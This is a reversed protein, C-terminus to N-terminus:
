RPVQTRLLRVNLGGNTTRLVEEFTLSSIREANRTLLMALRWGGFSTAVVGAFETLLRQSEAREGLRVGYPPNTVLWGPGGPPPALGRVDTRAFRVLDGVGARQANAMAARIAAASRDSGVIPVSPIAREANRAAEYTAKWAGADFGPWTMFRFSRSRGPAMRAALM